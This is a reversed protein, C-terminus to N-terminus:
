TSALQTATSQAWIIVPAMHKERKCNGLHLIWGKGCKRDVYIPQKDCLKWMSLCEGPTQELILNTPDCPKSGKWCPVILLVWTKLGLDVTLPSLVLSMSFLTNIISVQTSPSQSKFDLIHLECNNNMWLGLGFHYQIWLNPLVWNYIHLKAREKYNKHQIWLRIAWANTAWTSTVGQNKIPNHKISIM